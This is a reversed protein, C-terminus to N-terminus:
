QFFQSDGPRYSQDRPDDDNGSRDGYMYHHRERFFYTSDYLFGYGASVLRFWSFGALILQFWGFDASVWSFGASILRFGRHFVIESNRGGKKLSKKVKESFARL